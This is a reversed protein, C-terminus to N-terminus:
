LKPEKIELVFGTETTIFEDASTTLALIESVDWSLVDLNEATILEDLQETILSVEELRSRGASIITNFTAWTDAATTWTRRDTWYQSSYTLDSFYV